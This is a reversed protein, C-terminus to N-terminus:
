GQNASKCLEHSLSRAAAADLGPAPASWIPAIAALYADIKSLQNLIRGCYIMSWVTNVARSMPCWCCCCDWSAPTPFLLSVCTSVGFCPKQDLSKSKQFCTNCDVVWNRQNEKCFLFKVFLNTLTGRVVCSMFYPQMGCGFSYYLLFM